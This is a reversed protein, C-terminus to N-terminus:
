EATMVAVRLGVPVREPPGVNVGLGETECVWLGGEGVWEKLPLGVTSLVRVSDLVRLAVAVGEGVALGLAHRVGEPDALGVADGAERDRLADGERVDRVVVAVGDCAVRLQLRVSVGM